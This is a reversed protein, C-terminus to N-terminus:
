LRSATDPSNACYACWPPWQSKIQRCPCDPHPLEWTSVMWVNPHRADLTKVTLMSLTVIYVVLFISNLYAVLQLFGIRDCAHHLHVTFGDPLTDCGGPALTTWLSHQSAATILWLVLLIYSWITQFLVTKMFSDPLSSQMPQVSVVTFLATLLGMSPIAAGAGVYVFVATTYLETLFFVCSSGVLSGFVSSQLHMFRYNYFKLYRM